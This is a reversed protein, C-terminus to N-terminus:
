DRSLLEKQCGTVEGWIREYIPNTAERSLRKEERGTLMAGAVDGAGVWPM